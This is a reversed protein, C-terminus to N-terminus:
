QNYMMLRYKQRRTIIIELFNFIDSIKNVFGPFDYNIGLEQLKERKKEEHKLLNRVDKKLEEPSKKQFALIFISIYRIRDKM